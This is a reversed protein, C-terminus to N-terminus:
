AHLATPVSMATPISMLALIALQTIIWVTIIQCVSNVILVKIDMNAYLVTLLLATMVIFATSIVRTAHSELTMPTIDLPVTLVLPPLLIVAAPQALLQTVALVNPLPTILLANIALLQLGSTGQLVDLATLAQRTDQNAHQAPQEM